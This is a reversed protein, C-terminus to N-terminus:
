ASTIKLSAKMTYREAIRQFPKRSKLFAEVVDPDFHSGAGEHIRQAVEDPDMSGKYVRHSVMADYVDALAMIRASLPIETGKLGEPYGSGDWKEHHSRCVEEGVILFSNPGLEARAEEFVKAAVVTHSKMIQYEEDTLSEPKLLISDPIGIKGIDHLPAMKFLAEVFEDTILRRYKPNERLKQALVKVYQQTRRLHAGTEPDRAEGLTAMSHIALDQTQLLEHNRQKLAQEELHSKWWTLFLFTGMVVASTLLPQVYLGHRMFIVSTGIIALIQVTAVCGSLWASFRALCLSSIIGALLIALAEWTWAGNPQGIFDGQLINDLIAAHVEVGNSARDMPTARLDRLGVASTGILVFRDHFRGTSEKDQLIKAASVYEFRKGADRYRFRKGDGRFKILLSGSQDLPIQRHGISLNSCGGANRMIVAQSHAEAEIIMALPLSPYFRGHHKIFMPMRRHVGDPDPVINFFGSGKAASSLIPLNCVANEAIFLGGSLRQEGARERIFVSFPHPVVCEREPQGKESLNQSQAKPADGEQSLQDFKHGLIFPGKKLTEGLVQDFDLLAPHIGKVTIPRGQESELSHKWHIPSSSDAEAFVMDLGVVKPKDAAIKELLRAVRYRPWPWQGYQALTDEDLDVIVITDLTQQSHTLRLLSDYVLLELRGLLDPRFIHLLLAAATIIGGLATIRFPNWAGSSTRSM